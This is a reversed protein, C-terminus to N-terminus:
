ATKFLIEAVHWWVMALPKCRTINAPAVRLDQQLVWTQSDMRLMYHKHAEQIAYKHDSEGQVMHMIHRTRTAPIAESENCLALMFPPLENAPLPLERMVYEDWDAVEKDSNASAAPAAPAAASSSDAAVSYDAPAASMAPLATTRKAQAQM